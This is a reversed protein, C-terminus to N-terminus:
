YGHHQESNSRCGHNRYPPSCSRPLVQNGIRLRCLLDSDRVLDARGARLLSVQCEVLDLFFDPNVVDGGLDDFAVDQTSEM